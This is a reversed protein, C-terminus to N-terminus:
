FLNGFMSKNKAKVELKEEAAALELKQGLRYNHFMTVTTQREELERTLRDNYNALLSVADNVM